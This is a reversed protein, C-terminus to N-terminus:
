AKKAAEVAEEITPEKGEAVKKWHDNEDYAAWGFGEEDPFNRRGRLPFAVWKEAM